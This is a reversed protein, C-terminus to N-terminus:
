GCQPPKQSIEMRVARFQVLKLLDELEGLRHSLEKEDHRHHYDESYLHMQKGFWRVHDQCRVVMASLSEETMIRAKENRPLRNPFFSLIAAEPVLHLFSAM